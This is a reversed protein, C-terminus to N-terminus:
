LAVSPVFPALGALAVFGPLLYAIVLGFHRHLSDM